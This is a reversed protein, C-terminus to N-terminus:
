RAPESVVMKYMSDFFANPDDFNCPHPESTQVNNELDHHVGSLFAMPEIGEMRQHLSDAYSIASQLLEEPPRLHPPYDSFAVSNRFQLWVRGDETSILIMGINISEGREPSPVYQVVSYVGHM